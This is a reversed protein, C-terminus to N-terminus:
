INPIRTLRMEKGYVLKVRGSRMILITKIM